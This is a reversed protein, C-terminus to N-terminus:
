KVQPLLWEVQGFAFVEDIGHNIILEGSATVEKILAEFVRSEKRLKAKQNKLYLHQNYENLIETFFKVSLRSYYRDIVSCLEKTLAVTDYQQGTIQKLSVPNPLEGPFQTQNINVGIGVVAWSWKNGTFINEILIGAAKRDRWYIDNPWKITTEDGAYQSIFHRVAVAICASLKFIENQSLGKPQLIISMAINTSKEAVWNKGRQGKGATQEHTFCAMGHQALGEHILAMAYNNTSDVSQLEIFTKGIISGTLDQPM